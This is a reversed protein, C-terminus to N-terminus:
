ERNKNNLNDVLKNYEQEKIKMQENFKIIMQNNHEFEKARKNM